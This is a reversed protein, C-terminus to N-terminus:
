ESVNDYVRLKDMENIGRKFENLTMDNLRFWNSSACKEINLLYKKKICTWFLVANPQEIKYTSILEEGWKKKLQNITRNMNKLQTRVPYLNFDGSEASKDRLIWVQTKEGNPIDKPIARVCVEELKSHVITLKDRAADAKKSEEEAKKNADDLKNDMIELKNDMRNMLINNDKLLQKLSKNEIKNAESQYQTFKKILDELTIYYDRIEMSKQTDAMLVIHKFIMPHIILHKTKNQGNVKFETPNPYIDSKDPSIEMYRMLYMSNQNYFKEYEENTYDFWYINEYEAFNNHLLNKISQKQKRFEGKFGFWEIVSKDAYIPIENDLNYFFKNMSYADVKFETYTIFQNLTLMTGVKLPDSTANMARILWDPLCKQLVLSM